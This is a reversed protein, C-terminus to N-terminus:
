KLKRKECLVVIVFLKLLFLTKFMYLHIYSVTENHCYILQKENVLLICFYAEWVHKADIMFSQSSDLYSHTTPCELFLYFM